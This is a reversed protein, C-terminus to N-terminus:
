WRWQYRWVQPSASSCLASIQPPTAAVSGARSRNQSGHLRNSYNCHYDTWSSVRILLARWSAMRNWNLCIKQPFLIALSKRSPLIRLGVFRVACDYILSCPGATFKRAWGKEGEGERFLGFDTGPRRLHLQLLRVLETTAAVRKISPRLLVAFCDRARWKDSQWNTCRM